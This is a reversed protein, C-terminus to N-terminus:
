ILLVEEDKANPQAVCEASANRTGQRPQKGVVAIVLAVVLVAAVSGIVVEM